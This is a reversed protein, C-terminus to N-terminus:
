RKEGTRARQRGVVLKLVIGLSQRFGSWHTESGREKDWEKGHGRKGERGGGGKMWFAGLCQVFVTTGSNRNRLRDRSSLVVRPAVGNIDTDRQIGADKSIDEAEKIRKFEVEVETQTEIHPGM